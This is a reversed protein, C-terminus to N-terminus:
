LWSKTRRSPLGTPKEFIRPVATLKARPTSVPLRLLPCKRRPVRRLEYQSEIGYSPDPTFWIPRGVQGRLTPLLEARRGRFKPPLVTRSGDAEIRSVCRWAIDVLDAARRDLTHGIITTRITPSCRFRATPRRRLADATNPIDSCILYQGASVRRSGRGLAHRIYLKDLHVNGFFSNRSVSTSSRSIEHLM